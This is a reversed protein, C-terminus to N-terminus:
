LDVFRLYSYLVFLHAVRVRGKSCMGCVTVGVKVVAVVGVNVVCVWLGM